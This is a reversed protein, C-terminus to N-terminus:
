RSKKVFVHLCKPCTIEIKGVGKPVRVRQKCKPCKYYSHTTDQARQRRAKVAKQIPGWVKMFIAYEKRRAEINKSFMRFFCYLYIVCAILYVPLINFISGIFTLIAGVIILAFSLPDVGYRGRMFNVLWNLCIGESLINNRFVVRLLIIITRGFVFTLRTSM